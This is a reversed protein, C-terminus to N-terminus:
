FQLAPSSEQLGKSLLSIFGTLGLYRIFIWQFSQHKVSFSWYEPWIIGLLASENTFIRISLFISLLLLLSCCLTLHNSPMVWEMSMFKFEVLHFVPFGPTSCDMPDGLSLCLKAVSYCVIFSKLTLQTYTMFHFAYMKKKLKSFIEYKCNSIWLKLITGFFYLVWCRVEKIRPM